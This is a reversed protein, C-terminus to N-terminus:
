QSGGQCKRGQKLIDRWPLNFGEEDMAEEGAPHEKHAQGHQESKLPTGEPPSSARSQMCEPVAKVPPGQINMETECELAVSAECKRSLFPRRSLLNVTRILFFLKVSSM